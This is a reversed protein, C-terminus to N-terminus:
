SSGSTSAAAAAAAAAAIPAYIVRLTALPHLDFLLLSHHFQHCLRALHGDRLIGSLLLAFFGLLCTVPSVPTHM